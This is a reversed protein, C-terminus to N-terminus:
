GDSRARREAEEAVGRMLRGIAAKMGLEIARGSLPLRPEAEIEYRMVCGPGDGELSVTGVQSRLVPVGSLVRYRFRTPAEYELVEERIPPGLLHLARIAGTGNAAGGGPREIAARRIPTFEPYAEHDTITEFAVPPPAGIARSLTFEIM